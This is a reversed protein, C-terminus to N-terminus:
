EPHDAPPVDRRVLRYTYPKGAPRTRTTRASQQAAAILRAVPPNRDKLRNLRQRTLGVADGAAALGAGKGLAQLFLGLAVPTPPPQPGTLDHAQALAHAAAMAAAFPADAAQWDTLMREPIGAALACAAPPLGMAAARLAEARRQAHEIKLDGTTGLAEGLAAQADPGGALANMVTEAWRQDHSTDDGYPINM